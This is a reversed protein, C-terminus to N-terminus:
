KVLAKYKEFLEEYAAESIKFGQNDRRIQDLEELITEGYKKKLALAYQTLNGHRFQNCGVCQFHNNKEHFRLVLSVSKPVYHGCDGEQWPKPNGCSVCRAIGNEDADRQRIFKSFVEWARHKYTGRRKKRM